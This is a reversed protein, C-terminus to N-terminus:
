PPDAEDGSLDRESAGTSAQPVDFSFAGPIHTPQLAYTAELAEVADPALFQNVFCVHEVDRQLVPRLAAWRDAGFEQAMAADWGAEGRLAMPARARARASPCTRRSAKERARQASNRREAELAVKPPGNALFRRQEARIAHLDAGRELGEGHLHRAAEQWLRGQLDEALDDPITQTDLDALECGDRPLTCQELYEGRVRQWLDAQHPQWGAELLTAGDSCPTAHSAEPKTDMYEELQARRTGARTDIGLDAAETATSLPLGARRLRDALSSRLKTNNALLASKSSVPLEANDLAMLLVISPFNEDLGVAVLKGLHAHDYLRELIMLLTAVTLKMVCASEDLFARHLAAALASPGLQKPAMTAITLHAQPLWHAQTEIFNLLRVYQDLAGDPLRLLDGPGMTDVGTAINPPMSHLVRTSHQLEIPAQDEEAARERVRRLAQLADHITEQTHWVAKWYGTKYQTVQLLRAVDDILDRHKAHRVLALGRHALARAIAWWEAVENKIHTRGPTPVARRREFPVPEGRGTCPHRQEDSTGQHVILTGEYCNVWAAHAKEVSETQSPRKYREAGDSFDFNDDSAPHVTPTPSNAPRPPRPMPRPLRLSKYWWPNADGAEIELGCHTGWPVGHVPRVTIFDEFGSKTVAYDILSGKGKDCTATIPPTVITGGWEGLYGPATLRAPSMNWDGVVIWPDALMALFAALAVLRELVPGAITDHPEVYFALAVINGAKHHWATPAFGCCPDQGYTVQAQHRLGDFTFCAVHKRALILEGGTTGTTSRMIPLADCESVRWDGKSWTLAADHAKFAGVHTEVLALMQYRKGKSAVWRAAQPGWETINSYFPGSAQSSCTEADFQPVRSRFRKAKHSLSAISHCFKSLQEKSDCVQRYHVSTAAAVQARRDSGLLIIVAEQGYSSRSTAGNSDAVTDMVFPPFMKPAYLEANAAHKKARALLTNAMRIHKGNASAKNQQILIADAIAGLRTQCLGLLGGLLGRFTKLETATLPSNDQAARVKGLPVPQLNQCFEDQSMRIGFDTQEHRVGVHNIPPQQRTAGEFRDSCKVYSADFWENSSANNNEGAHFTAIAELEGPAEMWFYFCDDFASPGGFFTETMFIQMVVHFALPAGSLGYMANLRELVWVNLSRQLSPVHFTKPDINRLHRWVNALPTVRAQRELTKIGRKRLVEYMDQKCKSMPMPKWVTSEGFQKIDKLDAAEVLVVHEVADSPKLVLSDAASAFCEGTRTDLYFCHDEPFPGDFSIDAQSHNWSSPLEDGDTLNFGEVDSRFHEAILAQHETMPSAISAGTTRSRIHWRRSPQKPRKLQKILAFHINLPLNILQKKHKNQGLQISLLLNNRRARHKGHTRVLHHRPWLRPRYEVLHQVERFVSKMMDASIMIQRWLKSKVAKQCQDVQEISSIGSLDPVAGEFDDPVVIQMGNADHVLGVTITTGTRAHRLLVIYQMSQHKVIAVNERLNIDLLDCPGRWGPADKRDPVRHLDVIDQLPRLKAVDSLIQVKTDNAEATRQEVVAKQVATKAIMRPRLYSEFTDPISDRAGDIALTSNSGHDLFGRPNQGQLCQSPTFGGYELMFIQCVTCEFVIDEDTAVLGQEAASAQAIHFVDKKPLMEAITWRIAEDVMLSFSKGFSFFLDCVMFDGFWGALEARYRPKSAIPAWDNREERAAVVQQALELCKDPVGLRRLFKEMGPLQEHWLREHLGKLLRFREADSETEPSEWTDIDAGLFVVRCPSDDISITDSTELSNPQFTVRLSDVDVLPRLSEILMQATGDTDDGLDLQQQASPATLVGTRQGALGALIRALWTQDLNNLQEHANMTFDNVRVRRLQVYAVM